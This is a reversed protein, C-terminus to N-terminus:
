SLTVDCKVCFKPQSLKVGYATLGKACDYFQGSVPEIGLENYGIGLAGCRQVTAIAFKGTTAGNVLNTSEYIDFGALRTIFFERGAETAITDSGKGFGAIGLLAGV